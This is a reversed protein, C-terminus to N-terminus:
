LLGLTGHTAFSTFGTENVADTQFRAPAPPANKPASDAEQPLCHEAPGQYAGNREAERLGLGM